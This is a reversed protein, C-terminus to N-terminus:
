PAEPTHAHIAQYFKKFCAEVAARAAELSGSTGYEEHPLDYLCPAFTGEGEGSPYYRGVDWQVKGRLVKSDRMMLIWCYDGDPVIAEHVKSPRGSPLIRGPPTWEFKLDTLM